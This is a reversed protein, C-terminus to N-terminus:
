ASLLLWAGAGCALAGLGRAVREGDPALREAAIAATVAAMARLDMMGAVLLIATPGASSCSCHLGWALGHRWATAADAPLARDPAARCCALHRAKWRSFQLAGAGLMAAGVALPAIWTSGLAAVIGVGLPYVLTGVVSWVALYALAVVVVLGALRAAHTPVVAGRYRALMPALSPLMMVAMMAVWTGLFCAGADILSQGCMRTWMPMTAWEASIM